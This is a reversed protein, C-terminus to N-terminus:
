ILGFYLITIHILRQDHELAECAKKNGGFVVFHVGSHWAALLEESLQRAVFRSDLLLLKIIIDIFITQIFHLVTVIPVASVIGAFILKNLLFSINEVHNTKFQVRVGDKLVDDHDKHGM